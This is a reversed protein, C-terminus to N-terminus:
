RRGAETRSRRRLQRLSLAHLLISGPVVFAPTLVNPYGDIGISPINPVILQFPGPSIIM